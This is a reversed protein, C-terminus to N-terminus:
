ILIVKRSAAIVGSVAKGAEILTGYGTNAPRLRSLIPKFNKLQEM